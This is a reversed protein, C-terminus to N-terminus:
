LVSEIFESMTSNFEDSNEFFPVHGENNFVKIKSNRIKWQMDETLYSPVMRDFKNAVLLVPADIDNLRETYNLGSCLQLDGTIIRKVDDNINKQAALIFIGAKKHFIRPLMKSFFKEFDNISTDILSKSVPLYSSTSILIMAKVKEKNKLYNEICIVGGMSHGALIYKDIKEKKIVTEISRTYVDISQESICSSRGHGPLDIAITRYSNGFFRLQNHFFRSDGALGHVFIIPLGNEVGNVRYFIDIGNNEIHNLTFGM